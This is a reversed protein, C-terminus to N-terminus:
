VFQDRWGILAATQCHGQLLPMQLLFVVEIEKEGKMKQWFKGNAKCFGWPLLLFTCNVYTQKWHDLLLIDLPYIQPPLCLIALRPM